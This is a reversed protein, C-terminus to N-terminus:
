PSSAAPLREAIRALATRAQPLTSRAPAASSDVTLIQQQKRSRNCPSLQCGARWTPLHMPEPVRGNRGDIRRDGHPACCCLQHRGQSAASGLGGAGGFDGVAASSGAEQGAAAKCIIYPQQLRRKVVEVDGIPTRGPRNLNHLRAAAPPPPATASSHWGRLSGALGHGAYYSWELAPPLVTYCPHDFGQGWAAGQQGRQDTARQSRAGVTTTPGRSCALHHGKRAPGHGDLVLVPACHASQNTGSHTVLQGCGPLRYHPQVRM